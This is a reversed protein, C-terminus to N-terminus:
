RPISGPDDRTELPDVAHMNSAPFRAGFVDLQLGLTSFACVRISLCISTCWSVQLAPLAHRGHNAAVLRQQLTVTIPRPEKAFAPLCGTPEGNM